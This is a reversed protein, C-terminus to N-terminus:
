PVLNTGQFSFVLNKVGPTEISFSLSTLCVFGWILYLSANCLLEIHPSTPHLFPFLGKLSHPNLFTGCTTEARQSSKLLSYIPLLHFLDLLSLNNMVSVVSVFKSYKCVIINFSYM